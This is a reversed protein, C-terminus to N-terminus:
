FGEHNSELKYLLFVGQQLFMFEFWGDNLM